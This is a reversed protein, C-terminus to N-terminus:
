ALKCFIFPLLQGTNLHISCPAAAGLSVAVLMIRPIIWTDKRWLYKLAPPQLDSLYPLSHAKNPCFIDLVIVLGAGRSCHQLSVCCRVRCGATRAASRQASKYGSFNLGAFIHLKTPLRVLLIMEDNQQLEGAWRLIQTWCTKQCNLMNHHNNTLPRTISPPPSSPQAFM